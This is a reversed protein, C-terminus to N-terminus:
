CTIALTGFCTLDQDVVYLGLTLAPRCLLIGRSFTAGEVLRPKRASLEPEYPKPAKAQPDLILM